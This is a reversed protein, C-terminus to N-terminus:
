LLEEAIQVSNLAAGKRLNDCVVWMNITNQQTHDDRIRSIFVSDEGAVEVPTLYDQITVGDSEALIEQAEQATMEGDFEVNISIAHGLFVPVRVCTATLKVHDGMIKAVEQAIKTEEDSYGDAEFDGIKPILNFAIQREFIAGESEQYLYKGKTQDHLEDMAARGAGSTSQYTSVVVRKIRMANDLPKLAMCIPIVVCNPNAILKAKAIKSGNVEPIILPVDDDMRFASTKDIVVAGSALAKDVFQRSVASGASSFVIDIKSFDFDDLGQTKLVRQDGFSIEKGISDRSALAYIQDIPFNRESLINLTERGVNGTAGVVAVNYKKTM